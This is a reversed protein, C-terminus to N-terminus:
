LYETSRQRRMRNRHIPGHRPAARDTRRRDLVILAFRCWAVTRPIPTVNATEFKLQIHAGIIEVHDRDLFRRGLRRFHITPARFAALGYTATASRRVWLATLRNTRRRRPDARQREAARAADERAPTAIISPSRNR